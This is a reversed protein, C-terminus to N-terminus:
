NCPVEEIDELTRPYIQGTQSYEGVVGTIDYCTGVSMLDNLTAADEVVGEYLRLETQGSGDNIKANRENLGDGGFAVTLEAAEVKVLLGQIFSDSVGGDSAIDATTVV